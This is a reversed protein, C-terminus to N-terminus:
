KGGWELQGKESLYSHNGASPTLTIEGFFLQNDISYFDIRALPFPAALTEAAELMEKLNGPKEIRKGSRYQLAVHELYNWETDYYDRGEDRNTCVLIRKAKGNVCVVKYDTLREDNGTSLYKECIIRPKVGAYQYECFTKAFNTELANKLKQNIKDIDMKNKDKCILYFDEGSGHTAKLIFQEPFKDYEIEEVCDYVGYLPILINELGCEKVYERVLYKDAYKGYKKDYLHIMLYHIKEDYYKPKRFNPIKKHTRWYWVTHSFKRPMWWLVEAMLNKLFSTHNNKLM